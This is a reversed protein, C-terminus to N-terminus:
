MSDKIIKYTKKSNQAYITALEIERYKERNDKM